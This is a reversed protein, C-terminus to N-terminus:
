QGEPKMGIGEGKLFHCDYGLPGFVTQVGGAVYPSISQVMQLHGIHGVYCGQKGATFSDIGVEGGVIDEGEPVSSLAYAVCGEARCHFDVTYAEAVISGEIFGGSDAGPAHCHLVDFGYFDYGPDRRCFVAVQGASQDLYVGLFSASRDIDCQGYVRPGPM